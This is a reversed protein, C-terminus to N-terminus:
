IRKYGSTDEGSDEYQQKKHILLKFLCLFLFDFCFFLLIKLQTVNDSSGFGLTPITLQENMVAFKKRPMLKAKYIVFM